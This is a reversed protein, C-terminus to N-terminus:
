PHSGTAPASTPAAPSTPTTQTAATAQKAVPQAASSSGPASPASPSAPTGSAGPTAQPPGNFFVVLDFSSASGPCGAGGTSAAGGAPAPTPAAGAGTATSGQKTASSLTVRVVGNMLRLRSMLRAVDDQSGTCGRLEFAPNPLASRVGSSGGTASVASGTGATASLQQLSTSAPVVKALDDMAAAWDFRGSAIQSVTQARAQALSAFQTYGALQAAQAQVAPVQRQLSALKSKQDTVSNSTVVYITVLGLALGLLGVIVFGPGRLSGAGTGKARRYDGPLLNVARV